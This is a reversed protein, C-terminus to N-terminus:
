TTLQTFEEELSVLITEVVTRDGSTLFPVELTGIDAPHLEEQGRRGRPVAPNPMKRTVAVTRMNESDKALAQQANANVSHSRGANRGVCFPVPKASNVKTLKAQMNKPKTAKAGAMRHTAGGAYQGHSRRQTSEAIVGTSAPRSMMSPAGRATRAGTPLFASPARKLVGKPQGQRTLKENIDLM